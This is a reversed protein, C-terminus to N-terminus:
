TLFHLKHYMYFWPELFPFLRTSQSLLNTSFTNCPFRPLTLSLSLSLSCSLSLSLLLSLLLSLSLSLSCYLSLVLSFRRTLLEFPPLAFPLCFLSHISSLFSDLIQTELSRILQASFTRISTVLSVLFAEPELSCSLSLSFSGDSLISPLLSVILSFFSLFLLPFCSTHMSYCLWNNSSEREKERIQGYSLAAKM